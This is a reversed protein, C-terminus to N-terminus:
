SLGVPTGAGWASDDGPSAGMCPDLTRRHITVGLAHARAILGPHLRRSAARSRGQDVLLHCPVALAAALTVATLDAGPRGLM